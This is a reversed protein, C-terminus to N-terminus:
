FRKFCVITVRKSLNILREKCECKRRLPQFWPLGRKRAIDAPTDGYKDKYRGDELIATGTKEIIYETLRENNLEVSWHLPIRHADDKICLIDFCARSADLLNKQYITADLLLDLFTEPCQRFIVWHITTYKDHDTILPDLMPLDNQDKLYLFLICISLQHNQIAIHLPSFGRADRTHSDAGFKLLSYAIRTYGKRHFLNEVKIRYMRNCQLGIYLRQAIQDVAFM